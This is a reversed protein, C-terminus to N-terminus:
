GSEPYADGPLVVRAEPWVYHGANFTSGSEGLAARLHGRFRRLTGAEASCSALNVMEGPDTGLHFLQEPHPGSEWAAYRWPGDALFRGRVGNRVVEAPVPRAPPARDPSALSPLLSVGPLGDPAAVGLADCLTPYVDLGSSVPTPIARAPGAVGAGAFILPVNMSETHFTQKFPLQHAGQADGHDSTFVVLTSGALGADELADLIIGVLGDVKEVLRNYAWRYRRWDDATFGLRSANFERWHRIPAPEDHCPHFNAPLPPLDAVPPPPPLNGQPLAQGVAWEHINHPNDFSAVLLFRGPTDRRSRLFRAAAAATEADRIGSLRTFGHGHPGPPLSETPGWRGVHWKGAYATELGAARLLHGLEQAEFEPRVGRRAPDGTMDAETGPKLLTSPLRGHLLSSRSPVCMPYTCQAHTFRVGSAALRDINPTRLWPNGACSLAGAWQQDTLLVLAHTAIPM